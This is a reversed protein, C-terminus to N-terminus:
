NLLRKYDHLKLTDRGFAIMSPLLPDTQLMWTPCCDVYTEGAYEVKSSPFPAIARDPHREKCLVEVLNEVLALRHSQGKTSAKYADQAKLLIREGEGNFMDRSSGHKGGLASLLIFQTFLFDAALPTDSNHSNTELNLTYTDVDQRYLHINYDPIDEDDELYLKLFMNFPTLSEGKMNCYVVFVDSRDYNTDDLICCVILKYLKFMHLFLEVTGRFAGVTTSMGLVKHMLLPIEKSKRLGRQMNHLSLRRYFVDEILLLAIINEIEVRMTRVHIYFMTQFLLGDSTLTCFLGHFVLAEAEFMGYNSYVCQKYYQCIVNDSACRTSSEMKYLCSRALTIPRQFRSYCVALVGYIHVSYLKSAPFECFKYKGTLLEFVYAIAECTRQKRFTSMMAVLTWLFNAPISPSKQWPTSFHLIGRTPIPTDRFERQTVPLRFSFEPEPYRFLEEAVGYMMDYFAGQYFSTNHPFRKQLGLRWIVSDINISECSDLDIRFQETVDNLATRVLTSDTEEAQKLVNLFLSQFGGTSFAYLLKFLGGRDQLFNVLAEGKLHCVVTEQLIDCM